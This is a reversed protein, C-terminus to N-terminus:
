KYPLLENLLTIHHEEDVTGEQDGVMQNKSNCM